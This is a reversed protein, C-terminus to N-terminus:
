KGKIKAKALAGKPDPEWQSIGAALMRDLWRAAKGPPDEGGWCPPENWPKLKLARRQCGYAAFTAVEIWPRDKLMNVLQAARDHETSAMGIAMARRLANMDVETYEYKDSM